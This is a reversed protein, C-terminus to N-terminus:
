ADRHSHAKFVKQIDAYKVIKLISSPTVMEKELPDERGLYRVGTERMATLHKVM